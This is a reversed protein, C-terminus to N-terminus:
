FYTRTFITNIPCCKCRNQFQIRVLFHKNREAVDTFRKWEPDGLKIEWDDSDNEIEQLSTNSVKNEFKEEVSGYKSRLVCRRKPREDNVTPVILDSTKIKGLMEIDYDLVGKYLDHQLETLPAYVILEKKPPIELCVDTKMRRLMFPKLIERLSSLVQKEKEQKLLKETGHQDQLEKIDFWSEFTDLNNFIEPLLFNLLSWLESLDNQLPTGTLILRNMSKVSKLVRFFHVSYLSRLNLLLTCICFYNIFSSKLILSSEYRKLSRGISIDM